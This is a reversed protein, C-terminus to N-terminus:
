KLIYSKGNGTVPDGYKHVRIRYEGQEFKRLDVQISNEPYNVVGLVELTKYNTAEGEPVIEINIQIKAGPDLGWEGTNDWQIQVSEKMSADISIKDIFQIARYRVQQRSPKFDEPHSYTGLFNYREAGSNNIDNGDEFAVYLYKWFESHMNHIVRRSEVGSACRSMLEWQSLEKPKIDFEIEVPRKPTADFRKWGYFEGLWVETYRHGNSARSEEDKELFEDSDGFEEGSWATWDTEQTVGDWRAPIGISRYAAVTLMATGSCAIINDTYDEDASLDAKFHGPNANYNGLEFDYSAYFGKEDKPYHYNEMIYETTNRAIWYPDAKDINIGYENFVYDSVRDYFKPYILPDDTFRYLTDDDEIYKPAQHLPYHTVLHPYVFQKYDRTWFKIFLESEYNRVDPHQFAQYIFQTYNQRASPDDAPDFFSNIIDVDSISTIDNIILSNPIIGQHGTYVNDYPHCFTHYVEGRPNEVDDEVVSRINLRMERFKKPGEYASQLNDLVNIRHIIVTNGRQESAWLHDAGFALGGRFVNNHLISSPLNFFFIGRGSHSDILYISERGITGWLYQFGDMSMSTLALSSSIGKDLPKGPGPFQEIIKPDSGFPNTNDGLSLKIIGRRMQLQQEIFDSTNFSIYLFEGQRTVGFVEKDGIEFIDSKLDLVTFSKDGINYRCLSSVVKLNDSSYDIFYLFDDEGERSYELGRPSVFDNPLTLLNKFRLGGGNSTISYTYIKNATGDLVFLTNSKDGNKIALGNISSIEQDLVFEMESEGIAFSNVTPSESSCATIFCVTCLIIVLHYISKPLSKSKM